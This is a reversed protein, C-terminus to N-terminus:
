RPPYSTRGGYEIRTNVIGIEVRRNKARAEDTAGPVLPRTKGFGQTTIINLDLGAEVLYDSVAQARRESLVHNYTDTGVDDTHGFVEISYDKSTLLIGAIRSLLERNEPRLTAKDFDFKLYDDGLNMVLGLATKRTDVIRNLAEHLRDVERGWEQKIREAEDRALNAELKAAETEQEALRVAERASKTEEKASEMERTASEAEEEAQKALNQASETEAEAQERGRAAERASAEADTARSQADESKESAEEVQLELSAMERELEGFRNMLLLGAFVVLALLTVVLLTVLLLSLRSKSREEEPPTEPAHLISSM